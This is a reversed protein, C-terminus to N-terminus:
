GDEPIVQLKSGKVTQVKGDGAEEENDDYGDVRMDNIGLEENQEFTREYHVVEDAEQCWSNGAPDDMIITLGVMDKMKAILSEMNHRSESTASDGIGFPNSQRLQNRMHDILGEITTYRGAGSSSLQLELEPIEIGCSDSQSAIM